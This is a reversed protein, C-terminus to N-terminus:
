STSANIVAMTFNLLQSRVTAANVALRFDVRGINGIVSPPSGPGTITYTAGDYVGTTAAARAILIASQQRYASLASQNDPFRSLVVSAYFTGNSTYVENALSPPQQPSTSTSGSLVATLNAESETLAVGFVTSAQQQSVSGPHTGGTADMEARTFNKLEAQTAPVKGLSVTFITFDDEALSGIIITSGSTNRQAIISYAGGSYTENLQAVFPAQISSNESAVHSENMISSVLADYYSLVSKNNNFLLLQMSAVQVGTALSYNYIYASTINQSHSPPAGSANPSSYYVPTVQLPLGFISSARAASPFRFSSNTSVVMTTTYVGVGAGGHWFLLVVVAVAAVAVGILIVIASRSHSASIGSVTHEEM